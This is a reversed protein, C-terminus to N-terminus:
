KKVETRKRIIALIVICVLSIASVAIGEKVGPAAYSITIDHKGAPVKYALFAGAAETKETEKGDIFVKLGEDFVISTMVLSDAPMDAKASVVGNEENIDYIGGNKIENVASLLMDTDLRMITPKLFRFPSRVATINFTIKDGARYYGIDHANKESQMIREPAEGNITFFFGSYDMDAPETDFFTDVCYEGDEPVTFVYEAKGAESDDLAYKRGEPIDTLIMTQTMGDEATDLTCGSLKAEGCDYEAFLQINRNLVASLFMQQNNFVANIGTEPDSFFEKCGVVAEDAKYMIPLVYPDEIIYRGDKEYVTKYNQMYAAKKNTGSIYKVGFLSDSVISGNIHSIYNGQPVMAGLYKATAYARQNVVSSFGTFSNYGGYMQSMPLEDDADYARYFGLDVQELAMATEKSATYKNTNDSHEPFGNRASLVSVGGAANYVCEAAIFAFLLKGFFKKDSFKYFCLAYLVTVALVCVANIIYRVTIEHSLALICAAACLVVPVYLFAKNLKEKRGIARAAFILCMFVAGYMFRADLCKPLRGIHMILYIPKLTLAAAYFLCILGTAIRERKEAAKSVILMTTFFLPIIGFYIDLGVSVLTNDKIFLLGECLEGIGFKFIPSFPSSDFLGEYGGAVAKMEPLLFFGCLGATLAACGCMMFFSKVIEKIDRKESVAYFWIFYIFCTVGTMYAYYYLNLVCVFFAASFLLTKRETIIKEIGLLALPLVVANELLIVLYVYLIFHTCVAYLGALALAIPRDAGVTKSNDFFVFAFLGALGIKLVYIFAYVDQFSGEKFLLFLWDLLGSYNFWLAATSTGFGCQYTFYALLREKFMRAKFVTIPLFQARMDSAMMSKTGFPYIGEAAYVATIFLVPLLFALIYYKIEFQKQKNFM